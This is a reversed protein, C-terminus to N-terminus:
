SRYVRPRKWGGGGQTNEVLEHKEQCDICMVATPMAELRKIAIKEDCAACYGFEGDSYRSLAYNIATITDRNKKMDRRLEGIAVERAALTLEEPSNEGYEDKLRKAQNELTQLKEKRITILKAIILEIVQNRNADDTFGNLADSSKTNPNSIIASDATRKTM